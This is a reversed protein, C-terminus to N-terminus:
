LQLIESVGIFGVYVRSLKKQEDYIVTYPVSKVSFYRRFFNEPDSAATINNYKKLDRKKYIVKLEELPYSTVLYIRFNILLEINDIIEDIQAECFPCDPRIFLLIVPKGLPIDNSNFAVGNTSLLNFSPLTRGEMGTTIPENLPFSHSSTFNCNSLLLLVLLCVALLPNVSYKFLQLKM